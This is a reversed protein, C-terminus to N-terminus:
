SEELRWLTRAAASPSPCAVALLTALSAVDADFLHSEVAAGCNLRKTVFTFTKRETTSVVNSNVAMYPIVDNVPSIAVEAVSPSSEAVTTLARVM